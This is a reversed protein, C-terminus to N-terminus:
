GEDEEQEYYWAAMRDFEYQIEAKDATTLMHANSGIIADIGEQIFEIIDDKSRVYCNNYENM